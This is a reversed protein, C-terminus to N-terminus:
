VPIFNLSSELYGLVKARKIAKKKDYSSFLYINHAYVKFTDVTKDPDFPETDSQKPKDRFRIHGHIAAQSSEHSM